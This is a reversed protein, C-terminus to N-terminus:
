GVARDDGAGLNELQCLSKFSRDTILAVLHGNHADIISRCIPLGMGMGHPKTAFFPEFISFNPPSHGRHNRDNVIILGSDRV